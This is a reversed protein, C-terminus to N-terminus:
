FGLTQSLPSDRLTVSGSASRAAIDASVRHGLQRMAAFVALSVRSGTPSVRNVRGNAAASDWFRAAERTRRAPRGVAVWLNSVTSMRGDSLASM